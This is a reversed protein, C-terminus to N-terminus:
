NNGPPLGADCADQAQGNCPRGIPIGTEPGWMWAVSIRITDTGMAATDPIRFQIQYYETTGPWGIAAAVEAAQGNVTMAVPANVSAPPDSPFAGGPPVSPRTPGLGTVMAFLTEGPMAPRAVSVLQLDSHYVIPGSSGSVVQPPIGPYLYLFAHLLGGGNIRRYSPDEVASTVRPPSASDPNAAYFGRVGSFVGTGGVVIYAAHDIGAPAGPPPTGGGFGSIKVTGLETGDPQLFDFNWDYIGTRQSDAIAWGAKPTPGALVSLISEYATGKMPAGNVSAIDGIGIMSAFTKQKIAPQKATLTALQSLPSGDFAYVTQDTVDVQLLSPTQALARTSPFVFLSALVPLGFTLLRTIPKM